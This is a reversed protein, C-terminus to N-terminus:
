LSRARLRHFGRQFSERRGRTGLLDDRWRAANNTQDPSLLLRLCQRRQELRDARQRPAAALRPAAHPGRPRAPHHDPDRRAEGVCAHWGFDVCMAVGLAIDRRTDGGVRAAVARNGVDTHVAYAFDLATSNRPLALIKGKPTFLYVEDPFLDVKVGEIFELSGATGLEDFLSRLWENARVQPASAGDNTFPM